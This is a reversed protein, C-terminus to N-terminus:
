VRMGSVVMSAESKTSAIPAASQSNEVIGWLPVNRTSIALGLEVNTYLSSRDPYALFVGRKFLM